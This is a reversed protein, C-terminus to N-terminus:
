RGAATAATRGAACEADATQDVVAANPGVANTAHAHKRGVADKAAVASHGVAVKHGACPANRAVVAEQV